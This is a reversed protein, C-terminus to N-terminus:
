SLEIATMETRTIRFRYLPNRLTANRCTEFAELRDVAGSAFVWVPKKLSRKTAQVAYVVSVLNTKHTSNQEKM